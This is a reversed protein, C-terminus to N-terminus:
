GMYGICICVKVFRIGCVSRTGEWFMITCMEPILRNGPIHFLIEVNFRRASHHVYWPIQGDQYQDPVTPRDLPRHPPRVFDTSFSAVVFEAGHLTCFDFEVMPSSVAFLNFENRYGFYLILQNDLTKQLRYHLMWKTIQFLLMYEWFAQNLKQGVITEANAMVQDSYRM